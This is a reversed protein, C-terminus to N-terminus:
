SKGIWDAFAVGMTFGLLVFGLVAILTAETPHEAVFKKTWEKPIMFREMADEVM